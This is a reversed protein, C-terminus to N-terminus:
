SIARANLKHVAMVAGPVRTRRSEPHLLLAVIKSYTYLQFASIVNRIGFSLLLSQRPPGFQGYRCPWPHRRIPNGSVTVNRRASLGIGPWTKVPGMESTQKFCRLFASHRQNNKQQSVHNASPKVTEVSHVPIGQPSCPKVPPRLYLSTLLARNYFAIGHNHRRRNAQRCQRNNRLPGPEPESEVWQFKHYEYQQHPGRTPARYQLGIRFGPPPTVHLARPVMDLVAQRGVLSTSCKGRFRQVQRHGSCHHHRHETPEKQHHEPIDDTTNAGRQQGSPDNSKSFFPRLSRCSWAKAFGRVQDAPQGCPQQRAREAQCAIQGSPGALDSLNHGAQLFR